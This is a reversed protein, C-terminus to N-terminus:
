EAARFNCWLVEVMRRKTTGGAANNPVDFTHRKWGALANDYLPYAYGSLIVMGQVSQLVALLERHDEDSMERPGYVKPATRTAHVYPPDLYFLTAPTDESRLVDLAPRCLVKVDRLREHVAALGDVASWWDNVGDNRGGRLRTRVTPAFSAMRGSMSQRCLTFLAAAREVPDGNANAVLEHAAKWEAEAYLTLELRHRLRDFLAPDKLVAYFTMLDGHLDNSVESVGDAKRGDSTKEPWWLKRDGPDRAFFVQGSGFYPEVYHLHPPMLALVHRAVYHKGGHFKLAPNLNTM